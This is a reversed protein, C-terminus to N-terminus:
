LMNENDAVRDLLMFDNFIVFRKECYSDLYQNSFHTQSLHYVTGNPPPSEVKAKAFSSKYPTNHGKEVCVELIHEHQITEAHLYQCNCKEKSKPCLHNPKLVTTAHFDNLKSKFHPLIHCRVSKENYKLHTILFVGPAQSREVWGLCCYFPLTDNHYRYKDLKKKISDANKASSIKPIVESYRLTKQFYGPAFGHTCIGLAGSLCNPCTCSITRCFIAKSHAAGKSFLFNNFKQTGQVTDTDMSQSPFTGAVLRFPFNKVVKLHLCIPSDPCM